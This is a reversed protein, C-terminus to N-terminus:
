CANEVAATNKNTERCATHPAIIHQTVGAYVRLLAAEATFLAPVAQTSCVIRSFSQKSIVSGPCPYTAKGRSQFITLCRRCQLRWSSSPLSSGLSTEQWLHVFRDTFDEFSLMSRGPLHVLLCATARVRILVSGELIDQAAVVHYGQENTNRCRLRNDASTCAKSTEPVQQSGGLILNSPCAM